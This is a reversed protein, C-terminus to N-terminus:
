IRGINLMSTITMLREQLEIKTKEQGIIFKLDEKPIETYELLREIWEKNEYLEKDKADLKETLEKIQMEKVSIISRLDNIESRYKARERDFAIDKKGKTAKPM